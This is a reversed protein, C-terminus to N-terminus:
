KGSVVLYIIVGVCLLSFATLGILSWKIFNWMAQFQEEMGDM